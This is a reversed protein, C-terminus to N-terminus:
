TYDGAMWQNNFHQFATFTINKSHYHSNCTVSKLHVAHKTINHNVTVVDTRNTKNLTKTKVQSSNQKRQAEDCVNFMTHFEVYSCKQQVLTMVNKIDYVVVSGPHSRVHDCATTTNIGALSPTRFPWPQQNEKKGETRLFIRADMKLAQIRDRGQMEPQLWPCLFTTISETKKIHRHLNTM